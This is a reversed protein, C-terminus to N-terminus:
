KEAVRHQIASMIVMLMPIPVWAYRSLDERGHAALWIGFAFCAAPSLIRLVVVIRVKGAIGGVLRGRGRTSVLSLLALAISSAANAGWYIEWAAGTAGYSSLIASAFPVLTVSLLFVFNFIAIPWDFTLIPKTIRMHIFWWLGVLLFSNIFSIFQLTMAGLITGVSIAEHSIGEPARLDLVLLTLVIAFVADSFFLMRDLMRKDTDHVQQSADRAVPIHAHRARSPM